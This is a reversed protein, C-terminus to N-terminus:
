QSDSFLSLFDKVVLLDGEFQDFQDFLIYRDDPSVTMGLGFPHHALAVSRRAGTSFSMFMVVGPGGSPLPAPYYIGQSTVTFGNPYQQMPAVVLTSPGGGAPVSRIATGDVTLYFVSKGDPSEFPRLGGTNTLQVAAGGSVPMRWVEWQGSRTSTFYIWRGDHSYSPMTEDAPDATLRKAPGGASAITFLDAQGEPRAHFVLWQGDPSWYAQGMLPGGFTTLQVPSSGDAKAVWIEPSGSRSSTFSIEKGDPSFKPKEDVRTSSLFLEPQSPPEGPRPIRARWINTDQRIQSYVLHKGATIRAAGDELAVPVALAEGNSAGIM